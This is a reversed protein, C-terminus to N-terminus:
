KKLATRWNLESDLAPIEPTDAAEIDLDETLDGATEPQELPQRRSRKKRHLSQKSAASSVAVRNWKPCPKRRGRQPQVSTRYRLQSEDVNEM